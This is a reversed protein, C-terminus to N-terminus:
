GNKGSGNTLSNLMATISQSQSQLNGLSQEMAAYQKLLSTKRVDLQAMIRDARSNLTGIRDTLSLSRTDLTGTNVDTYSQVLRELLAGTGLNVTVDGAAGTTNGSYRVSLGVTKTGTKSILVQGSGSAAEGNITGAVDTGNTYSGAAIPVNGLTGGATYAVTLGQASGWASQTISVEGGNETAVLGLGTSGFASNLASVIQTSTMGNTLAISV